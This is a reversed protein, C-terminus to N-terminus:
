KGRVPRTMAYDAQSASGPILRGYAAVLRQAELTWDFQRSALTQAREGMSHRLEDSQMLKLCAAALGEPQDNEAFLAADGLLRRTETLPYAVAPIGLASYEFVKNMSIKDNYVNVPDPIIGIDFASLLSLLEDGSKYGTFVIDEALGLDAALQKVSALAPGDGVVVSQFRPLQHKTKLLHVARVLHDVGDQDGVIGVYGLVLGGKAVIAPNPAVRRLRAKDPISYVAVVDESQKGGRAIAIDRFTDNATIVLDATKFTLWEFFKLLRVFAGDRGFKAIFLEPSVDHHDFVFRKGLLKFPAAVIFIIDPPNCAQIVDFGERWLVKLLLRAEHFLASAYEAAFGLTGRAELPLPHRYISIGELVEHALPYQRTKPCIVSVKWGAAHLARAEQWVRRDFPVPLNEVIIVCSRSM